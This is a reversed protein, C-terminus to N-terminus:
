EAEESMKVALEQAMPCTALGGLSTEKLSDPLLRGIRRMADVVQDPPVASRLGALAMHAGTAAVMVGSANRKICPVEVLGAVPDCTLGMLSKMAMAAAHIITETDGGELYALAGASMSAAVGVEAQCGGAAGAISASNAYVEGIGGSVFLAEILRDDSVNNYEGYSLVVAPIIGCSGATPAAVICKMCANSEAMKIAKATAVTLFDGLLSKGTKGYDIMKQGMGGAMGSVSRINSDYAQDARRMAKLMLAMKEYCEEETLAQEHCNEEMVIRWFPKEEIECLNKIDELLKFSM